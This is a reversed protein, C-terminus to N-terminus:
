WTSAQSFEKELASTSILNLHLDQIPRVNKLAVRFNVNSQIFINVIGIIDVVSNNDMEISCLNIARYLSLYEQKPFYQYSTASNIGM